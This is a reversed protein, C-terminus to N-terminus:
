LVRRLVPYQSQESVIGFGESAFLALPGTFREEDGIGEACRPFAEVATAGASRALALGTRLLARAVGRRRFAPDVLFCGICLVTSRDGGFCPLARYPRQAYLKPLSTAPELKMWGIVGGSPLAAVVGSLAQQRTRAALERRNEEPESALRGLWANKDGEFHFYNCFCGSGARDFLEGLAPVLSETLATTSFAADSV